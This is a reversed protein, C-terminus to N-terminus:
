AEMWWGVDLFGLAWRVDKGGSKRYVEILM